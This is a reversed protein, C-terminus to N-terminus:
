GPPSDHDRLAQRDLHSEMAESIQTRSLSTTRKANDFFETAGAALKRLESLRAHARISAAFRHVDDHSPPRAM